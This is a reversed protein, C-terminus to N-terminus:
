LATSNTNKRKRFQSRFHFNVDLLIFKFTGRDLEFHQIHICIKTAEVAEVNLQM